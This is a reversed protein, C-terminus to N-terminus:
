PGVVAHRKLMAGSETLFVSHGLNKSASRELHPGHHFAGGGAAHIPGKLPLLWGFAAVCGPLYELVCCM